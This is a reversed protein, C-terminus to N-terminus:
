GGSAAILLVHYFLGLSGCFARALVAVFSAEPFLKNRQLAARWPSLRPLNFNGDNFAHNWDPIRISSVSQGWLNQWEELIRTGHYERCGYPCSSTRLHVRNPNDIQTHLAACISSLTRLIKTRLSSNMLWSELQPSSCCDDLRAGMSWDDSAVAWRKLLSCRLLCHQVLSCHPQTSANRSTFKPFQWIFCYQYKNVVILFSCCSYANRPGYPIDPIFYSLPTSYM